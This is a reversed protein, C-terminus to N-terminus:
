GRERLAEAARPALAGAVVEHGQATLHIDTAFYVRDVGARHLPGHLSVFPVQLERCRQELWPHSAPEAGAAHERLPIAAVLLGAAAARASTALRALAWAMAARQDHESVAAREARELQDLQVARPPVFLHKHLTRYLASHEYWWMAGPVPLLFREFPAPDATAVLEVVGDRVRVHPRPGLGSYYPMLNDQFDNEFVVVVVLDPRYAALQEPLALAQQVTSYGGVGANWVETAPLAREMRVTFLEDAAVEAGQTFSDGVVLVRARGPARADVHPTARLGRADTAVRVRRGGEVVVDRELERAPRWGLRDDLEYLPPNVVAAWVRLALEAVAVALLSGFGM